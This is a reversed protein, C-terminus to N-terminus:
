ELRILVEEKKRGWKLASRHFDYFVEIRDPGKIASGRDEVVGWGYDPIYMETGFPFYNTDAAITGKTNKILCLPNKVIRYPISWPRFLSSPSLIWPYNQHPKVGSATRGSYKRGRFTGNDVYKNWFDLKLFILSGRKWRCCKQCGCYATVEMTRLRDNHVACGVFLFNILIIIILFLNKM